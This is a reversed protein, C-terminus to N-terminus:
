NKRVLRSWLYGLQSQKKQTLRIHSNTNIITNGAFDFWRNQLDDDLFSNKLIKYYQTNTRKGIYPMSISHTRMTSTGQALVGTCAMFLATLVVIFSCM